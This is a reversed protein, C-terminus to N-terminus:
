FRRGGPGWGRGRKQKFWGKKKGRGQMEQPTDFNQTQVQAAVNLQKAQVSLTTPSLFLCGLASVIILKKM